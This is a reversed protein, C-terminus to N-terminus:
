ISKYNCENHGRLTIQMVSRLGPCGSCNLCTRFLRKCAESLNRMVPVELQGKVLIRDVYTQCAPSHSDYVVAVVTIGATQHMCQHQPFRPYIGRSGTVLQQSCAPLLNCTRINLCGENGDSSRTGACLRCNGVVLIVQTITSSQLRNEYMSYGNDISLHLANTRM